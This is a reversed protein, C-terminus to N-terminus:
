LPDIMQSYNNEAERLAPCDSPDCVKQGKGATEPGNRIMSPPRAKGAASQDLRRDKKSKRLLETYNSCHGHWQFLPWTM